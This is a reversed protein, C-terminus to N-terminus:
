DEILGERRLMEVAAHKQMCVADALSLGCGPNNALFAHALRDWLRLPVNNLHRDAKYKAALSLPTEGVLQPSKTTWRVSFKECLATHKAEHKERVRKQIEANTNM